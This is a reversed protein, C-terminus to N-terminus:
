RPPFDKNLKIQLQTQNYNAGDTMMQKEIDKAGSWNKNEYVLSFASLFPNVIIMLIAYQVKDPQVVDRDCFSSVLVGVRKELDGQQFLEEMQKDAWKQYISMPRAAYAMNAARLTFFMMASRDDVTDNPWSHGDGSSLRQNLEGLEQFHRTIDLKLVMTILDMRLRRVQMSDWEKMFNTEPELMMQSVFSLTHNAVVTVDNYRLARPHRTKVLFENTFGPNGCHAVLAGCFLTFGLNDLQAWQQGLGKSLFYNCAQLLDVARAHGHFRVMSFSAQVKLTFQALSESDLRLLHTYDYIAVLRLFVAAL